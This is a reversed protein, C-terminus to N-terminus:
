QGGIQPALLEEAFLSWVAPLPAEVRIRRQLEPHHFEIARAHLAIALTAPDTSATGFTEASGYLADGWIPFGRTAAQLRIQHMRGTELTIQLLTAAADRTLVHYHMIAPRADPLNPSVIEGRPEDPIKRIHDIWTGEDEPVQGSVVGWYTKHITRREFQRSLQRAARPTVAFLVVGSVPRDLRHPVGLYPPRPDCTIGPAANIAPKERLAARVRTELSDYGPPAQTSLGAPKNVAWIAEDRYLFDLPTTM